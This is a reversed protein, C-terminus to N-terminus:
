QRVPISFSGFVIQGPTAPNTEQVAIDENETKLQRIFIRGSATVMTITEEADTAQLPTLLVETHQDERHFHVDNSDM